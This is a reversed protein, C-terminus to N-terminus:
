KMVHYMGVKQVFHSGIIGTLISDGYPLLTSYGEVFEELAFFM